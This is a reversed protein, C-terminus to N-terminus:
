HTRSANVLKKWGVLVSSHSMERVASSLLTRNLYHVHKLRAMCAKVVVSNTVNEYAHTRVSPLEFFIRTMHTLSLIKFKTCLRNRGDPVSQAVFILNFVYKVLELAVQHPLRNAIRPPSALEHAPQSHSARCAIVMAQVECISRQAGLTGSILCHNWILNNTEDVV